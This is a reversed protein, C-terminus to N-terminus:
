VERRNGGVIENKIYVKVVYRAKLHETTGPKISVNWHRGAKLPASRERQDYTQWAPTIDQEEVVVEADKAPHPIRERVEVDIVRGLNNTLEIAIDHCFEATAVVQASSRREEFATNRACVIAQEVGLGLEFRQGPAVTALSTTLVYEGDVYIEAMGPLLPGTHPNQLKAVRYVDTQVRPVTVYSLACQAQRNALPVSHFAGDGPVDIRDDASYVHDFHGAAGRVDVSGAPLSTRGAATAMQSAHSILDSLNAINLDAYRELSRRYRAQANEQTLAGRENHRSAPGLTLRAFRGPDPRKPKPPASPKSAAIKAAMPAAAMRSPAAARKRRAARLMPEPAAMAEKEMSPMEPAAAAGGYGMSSGVIMSEDTDAYDDYDEELLEEAASGGSLVRDFLQKMMTQDSHNQPTHRSLRKPSPTAAAAAAHSRDHDGFLRDADRSAPRFGKPSPPAPQAKGIKIATLAPKETWQMASATSLRLSVGRWDEGSAQNVVARMQIHAQSGDRSIHCQYQPAWRAGPVFYSILLTLGQPPAPGEVRLTATISKSLRTPTLRRADGFQRIDEEIKAAEDRLAKLANRSAREEQQRRHQAQTVFQDLALRAAVPSAPPRSGDKLRPRDPIKLHDLLGQELTLQNSKQLQAEIQRQVEKLRKVDPEQPNQERKAVHLGVRVQSVFARTGAPAGLVSVRVSHDHLSLPLGPLELQGQVSGTPLTARRTVTAGQHYVQVADIASSIEIM